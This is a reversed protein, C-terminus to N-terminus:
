FEVDEIINLLMFYNEIKKIINEFIHIQMFIRLRITNKNKIKKKEAFVCAHLKRSKIKKAPINSNIKSPIM